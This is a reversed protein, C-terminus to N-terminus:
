QTKEMIENAFSVESKLDAVFSYYLWIFMGSTNDIGQRLKEDISIGEAFRWTGKECVVPFGCIIYM